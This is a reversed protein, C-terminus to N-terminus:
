STFRSCRNREAVMLARFQEVDAEPSTSIIRFAYRNWQNMENHANSIRLSIQAESETARKRLRQEVIEISPPTLFVDVLASTIRPDNSNRISEAGQIDIDLIVDRGAELHELVSSKKTGYFNGHVEAWELLNDNAIEDEFQARTLFHYDVGDVEGPRPSRTTCSVSYEHDAFPNLLKLLTSKGGGSPASLVFLIGKRKQSLPKNM